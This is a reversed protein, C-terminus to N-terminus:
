KKMLEPADHVNGIINYYSGDVLLLKRIGRKIRYAGHEFVVQFNEKGSFNHGQGDDKGFKETQLIDGEYIEKGTKDLLGTFQVVTAPIIPIARWEDVGHDVIHAVIHPAGNKHVYGGMIWEGTHEKGRFKIERM